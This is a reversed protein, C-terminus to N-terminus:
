GPRAVSSTCFMHLSMAVQHQMDVVKPTSKGKQSTKAFSKALYRVRMGKQEVIEKNQPKNKKKVPAPISIM